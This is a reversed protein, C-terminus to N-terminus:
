EGAVFHRECVWVNALKKETLDDRSIAKLWARRGESTIELMQQGQHKIIAPLRFFSCKTSSKKSNNSCGIIACSVMNLCCLKFLCYSYLCDKFLGYLKLLGRFHAIHNCEAVLPVAIHRRLHTLCMM